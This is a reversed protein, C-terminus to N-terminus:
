LKKGMTRRKYFDLNKNEEQRWLRTEVLDSMKSRISIRKTTALQEKTFLSKKIKAMKGNDARLYVWSDDFKVIKGQLEVRDTDVGAVAFHACLFFAVFIYKM